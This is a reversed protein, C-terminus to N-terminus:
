FVDFFKWVGKFVELFCFLLFRWIGLVGSTGLAWFGFVELFWYFVFFVFFVFRWIGLVRSIGLAWIGCVEFFRWVSEFVELVRFFLFRCIGM